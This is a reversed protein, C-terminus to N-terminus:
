CVHGILWYCGINNNYNEELGTVKEIKEKM